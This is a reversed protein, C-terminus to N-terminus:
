HQEAAARLLRHPEALPRAPFAAPCTAVRGVASVSKVAAIAAEPESAGVVLVFADTRDRTTNRRPRVGSRRAISRRRRRRASAPARTLITGSLAKRFIQQISSSRRRSTRSQVLALHQQEMIASNTPLAADADDLAGRRAPRDAPEIFPCDWPRDVVIKHDQSVTADAVAMGFVDRRIEKNMDTKKTGEQVSRRDDIGASTLDERDSAYGSLM